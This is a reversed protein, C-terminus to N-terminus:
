ERPDGFREGLRATLETDDRLQELLARVVSMGDTEHDYAYDRLFKHLPRPLDVSIRVMRERPAPGQGRLDEKPREGPDEAKSSAKSAGEAARARPTERALGSRLRALSDTAKKGKGAAM